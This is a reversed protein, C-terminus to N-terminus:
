ARLRAALAQGTRDGEFSFTQVYVSRRAQRLDAELVTWFAPFDVHLTLNM